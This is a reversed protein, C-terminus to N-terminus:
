FSLPLFLEFFSAASEGPPFCVRLLADDNGKTCTMGSRSLLASTHYWSLGRWDGSSPDFMNSSLCEGNLGMGVSSASSSRIDKSFLWSSSVMERRFSRSVMGGEGRRTGTRKILSFAM